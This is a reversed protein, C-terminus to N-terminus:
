RTLEVIQLAARVRTEPDAARLFRRLEAFDGGITEPLVRQAEERIALNQDNVLGQMAWRSAGPDHKALLRAAGIRVMPDPAELLQRVRAEWGADPNVAAIEAAKLRVDAAESDFWDQVFRLPAQNGMRLLSSAAAMRPLLQVDSELVQSLQPVTTRADLDGLALAAAARIEPRPSDLMQLVPKIASQSRSRGLARISDVPRPDDPLAAALEAVARGDGAAALTRADVSAQEASLRVYAAVDTDGDRALANAVDTRLQINTLSTAADYLLARAVRRLVYFDEVARGSVWQEYAGLGAEWGQQAIAAEVALAIVAPDRPHNQMLRGAVAAARALQGQAVAAWGEAIAAAEETPVAGPVTRTQAVAPQAFGLGSVLLLVLAALRGGGQRVRSSMVMLLMM